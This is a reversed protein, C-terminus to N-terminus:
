AGHAHGTGPRTRPTGAGAEIGVCSCCWAPWCRVSGCRAAGRARHVVHDARAGGPRRVMLTVAEGPSWGLAVLRHVIHDRRQKTLSRRHRLRYVAVILADLLFIGLLMSRSSRPRAVPRRAGAAARARGGGRHLRHRPSGLARRVAVGAAPQLALFGFCAGLSVSSVSALADQTGFAAPAFVGFAAGAGIAAALADVNGFGDAAQTVVVILVFAGLVDFFTSAPPGSGPAPSSRWSARRGGHRRVHDPRGARFAGRVLRGARAGGRRARRGGGAPHPPHRARCSGSSRGSPWSRAPGGGSAAARPTTTAAQRARATAGCAVTGLVLTVVAAIAFALLWRNAASAAIVVAPHM